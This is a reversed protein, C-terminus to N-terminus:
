DKNLGIKSNKSKKTQFNLKQPIFLITKNVLSDGQAFNNNSVTLANIKPFLIKIEKLL